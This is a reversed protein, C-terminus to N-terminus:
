QTRNLIFEPISIIADRYASAPFEALLQRAHHGYEAALVRTRTLGGCEEAVRLIERSEVSRFSREQLVARVRSSHEARGSQMAFSLPFTMKGEKLDSAVPKGLTEQTSTLDLLDDVLQFAMGLNRGAAALRETIRSDVNAAIAPLKM